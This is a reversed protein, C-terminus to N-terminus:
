ELGGRKTLEARLHARSLMYDGDFPVKYEQSASLSPWEYCRQCLVRGCEVRYEAYREDGCTVCAKM